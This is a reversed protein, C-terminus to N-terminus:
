VAKPEIGSLSVSKIPQNNGINNLTAPDIDNKIITPPNIEKAVLPPSGFFICAAFSVIVEAM